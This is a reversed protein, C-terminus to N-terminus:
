YRGATDLLIGDTTFFWDCNRTGGVGQVINSNKDALPFQLGSNAVATSKGAAPNGIIMYWPLEYLATAGSKEGLKSNKITSIAELMRKRITETEDRGVTSTKDSGKEAQGELMSSFNQSATKTRQKRYLVVLGWILLIAVLFVVVWIGDIQLADAALFLFCALAVFGVVMLTRTNTLFQWIRQM